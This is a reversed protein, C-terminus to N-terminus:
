QNKARQQFRTEQWQWLKAAIEIAKDVNLSPLREPRDRPPAETFLVGDVRNLYKRAVAANSAAYKDLFGAAAEGSPALREETSIAAIANHVAGRSLNLHEGALLPLHANFRRMFELAHIDLSANMRPPQRLEDYPQFGIADCFDALLGDRHLQAPEFVRIVLHDRGFVEAWMDLLGLYDFWFGEVFEFEGTHGGNKIQASFLSTALDDQRRLYVIVRIERALPSLLRHLRGIEEVSSLGTSCYENSLIVTHIDPGAVAVALRSPFEDIFAILRDREALGLHARLAPNANEQAAYVGLGVHGIHRAAPLVPYVFGHQRLLDRNLTMGLQLTKTGTKALGIHLVARELM